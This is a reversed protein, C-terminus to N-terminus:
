LSCTQGISIQYVIITSGRKGVWSYIVITLLPPIMPSPNKNSLLNLIDRWGVCLKWEWDTGLLLTQDINSRGM